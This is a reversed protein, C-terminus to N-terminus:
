VIGKNISYYVYVPITVFHENILGLNNFDTWNQSFVPAYTTLSYLSLVLKSIPLYPKPWSTYM